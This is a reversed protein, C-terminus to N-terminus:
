KIKAKKRKTAEEAICSKIQYFYSFTFVLDISTNESKEEEEYNYAVVSYVHMNNFWGKISRKVGDYTKEFAKDIDGATFHEKLDIRHRVAQTCSELPIRSALTDKIKKEFTEKDALEIFYDKFDNKLSEIMSIKKKEIFQEEINKKM